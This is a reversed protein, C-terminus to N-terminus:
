QTGIKRMGLGVAVTLFASIRQPDTGGFLGPDFKIANLPNSRVVTTEHRDALLTDRDGEM